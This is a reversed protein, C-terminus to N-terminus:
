DYINNHNLTYVYTYETLSNFCVIKFVWNIVFKIIPFAVPFKFLDLAVPLTTAGSGWSHISASFFCYSFINIRSYHSIPM